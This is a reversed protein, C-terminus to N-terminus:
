SLVSLFVLSPQTLHNTCTSLRLLLSFLGTPQTAPSAKPLHTQQDQCSSHIHSTYHDHHSCPPPLFGGKHSCSLRLATPAHPSHHHLYPPLPLGLTLSRTRSWQARDGEFCCLWPRQPGRGRPPPAAPVSQKKLSNRRPARM